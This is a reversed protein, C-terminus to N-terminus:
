GSHEVQSQIERIPNNASPLKELAKARHRGNHVSHHKTPPLGTAKKKEGTAAAGM